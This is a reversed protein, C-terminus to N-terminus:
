EPSTECVASWDFEALLSAFWLPKEAGTTTLPGFTATPLPQTCSVQLGHAGVPPFTLWFLPLQTSAEFWLVAVWDFVCDL